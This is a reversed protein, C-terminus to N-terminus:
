PQDALEDAQLRLLLLRTALVAARVLDVDDEFPAGPQAGAGLDLVELLHVAGVHRRADLV